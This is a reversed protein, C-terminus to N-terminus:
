KLKWKNVINKKAEIGEPNDLTKKESLVEKASALEDKAREFFEQWDKDGLAALIQTYQEIRKISAERSSDSEILGKDYLFDMEVSEVKEGKKIAEVVPVMLSDWLDTKDGEKNYELFYKAGEKNFVKPGFWIDLKKNFSGKTEKELIQQFKGEARKELFSQVEPLQNWAKEGREPIIINTGNNIEEQLRHLNAENIFDDKEVEIWIITPNDIGETDAIELARQFAERRGGGLTNPNDKNVFTLNQFKKFSDLMETPLGGDNRVVMKVGLKEANAFTKPWIKSRSRYMENDAYYVGTVVIINKFEDKNM